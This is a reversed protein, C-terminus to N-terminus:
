ASSAGAMFRRATCRPQCYISSGGSRDTHGHAIEPLLYAFFFRKVIREAGTNDRLVPELPAFASSAM